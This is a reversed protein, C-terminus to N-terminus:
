KKEEMLKKYKPHPAKGERNMLEHFVDYMDIGKDEM